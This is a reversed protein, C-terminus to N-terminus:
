WGVRVWIWFDLSQFKIFSESCLGRPVFARYACHIDQSIMCKNRYAIVMLLLLLDIVAAM